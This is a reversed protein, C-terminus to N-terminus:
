NQAGIVRFVQDTKCASKCGHFPDHIMIDDRSYVPGGEGAQFRDPDIFHGQALALAM